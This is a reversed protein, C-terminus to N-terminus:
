RRRRSAGGRNRWRSSPSARRSVGFPRSSRCVRLAGDAVLAPVRPPPVRRTQHVDDDGSRRPVDAGADDVGEQGVGPDIPHRADGAAAGAARRSTGPEDLGVDAVVVQDPQELAGMGDDVQRPPELRGM